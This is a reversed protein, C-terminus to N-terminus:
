LFHLSVRKYCFIFHERTSVAFNPGVVEGNNVKALLEVGGVAVTRMELLSTDCPICIYGVVRWDVGDLIKHLHVAMIVQADAIVIEGCGALMVSCILQCSIQMGLSMRLIPMSNASDREREERELAKGFAAPM